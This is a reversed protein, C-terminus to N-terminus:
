QPVGLSSADVGDKTPTDRVGGGAASDICAYVMDRVNEDVDRFMWALDRLYGGHLSNPTKKWCVCQLDRVSVPMEATRAANLLADRRAFCIEPVSPGPSASAIYVKVAVSLAKELEEGYAGRVHAQADAHDFALSLVVDAPLTESLIKESIAQLEVAVGRWEETDAAHLIGAVTNAVQEIAMKVLQFNIACALKWAKVDAARDGRRCLVGAAGELTRCVKQLETGPWTMECLGANLLPIPLLRLGAKETKQKGDETQKKM